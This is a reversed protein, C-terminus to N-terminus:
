LLENLEPINLQVLGDRFRQIEAEAPLKYPSRLGGKSGPLNLVKLAMKIWRPTSSQWKLVYERFRTLEAYVPAAAKFDGATALDIYSRFTKPIINAEAGLLGTAGDALMNMSGTFPIYIEVDRKLNDKLARFYTDNLGALNIAVVNAHRNAIDAMVPASPTYGITPNPAL